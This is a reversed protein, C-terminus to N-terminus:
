TTLFPRGTNECSANPMTESIATYLGIVNEVVLESMSKQIISDGTCFIPPMLNEGIRKLGVPTASAKAKEDLM